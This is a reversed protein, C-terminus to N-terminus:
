EDGMTLWRGTCSLHFSLTCFWLSTGAILWAFTQSFSQVRYALLNPWPVLIVRPWLLIGLCAYVHLIGFCSFTVFMLVSQQKSRSMQEQQTLNSALVFIDTRSSAPKESCCICSVSPYTWQTDSAITFIPVKQLWSYNRCSCLTAPLFFLQLQKEESPM